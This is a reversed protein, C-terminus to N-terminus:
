SGQQSLSSSGGDGSRLMEKREAIQQRKPQKKSAATQYSQSPQSAAPELGAAVATRKTGQGLASASTQQQPQQQPQAAPQRPAPRQPAVQTPPSAKQPSLLAARRTQISASLTLARHAHERLKFLGTSFDSDEDHTWLHIM